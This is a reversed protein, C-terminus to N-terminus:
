WKPQLCNHINQGAAAGNSMAGELEILANEPVANDAMNLTYSFEQGDDAVGIFENLADPLAPAFYDDIILDPQTSGELMLQLQNGVRKILVKKPSVGTQQDQLLYRENGQAVVKVTEDSVLDIHRPALNDKGVNKARIILTIKKNM